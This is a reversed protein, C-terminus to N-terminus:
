LEVRQGSNKRLISSASDDRTLTVKTTDVAIATTALTAALALIRLTKMTHQIPTHQHELERHNLSPERIGVMPRFSSPAARYLSWFRRGFDSIRRLRAQVTEKMGSAGAGSTPM